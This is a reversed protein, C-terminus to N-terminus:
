LELDIYIYIYIYIDVGGRSSSARKTLLAPNFSRIHNCVSWDVKNRKAPKSEAFMQLLSLTVGAPALALPPVLSSTAVHEDRKNEDGGFMNNWDIGFGDEPVDGTPANTDDEESAPGIPVDKDDADVQACVYGVCARM